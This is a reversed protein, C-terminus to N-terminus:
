SLQRVGHGGVFLISEFVLNDPADDNEPDWLYASAAKLDGVIETWGPLDRDLLADADNWLLMLRREPVSASGGLDTLGDAFADANSAATAPLGLAAAIAQRTATGDAMESGTVEVVRYGAPELTALIPVRDAPAAFYVGQGEIGPLHAGAWTWETVVAM